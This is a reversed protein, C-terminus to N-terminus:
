RYREPNPLLENMAGSRFGREDLRVEAFGKVAGLLDKRAAVTEVLEADIEVKAVEGGLDRVRLNRVPLGAGALAARLAAEAESVRHLGDATVETGYAIRSSLCAAAPKDWTSLNWTKSTARIEAKTLGADALPTIAGARSAARIGPRFGAVTDDANTGTAVNAIGRSEALPGLVSMLETKCFFCRDGANRRYGERSLEDTTPSHHAVGLEAAFDRALELETRPLSPSIATAAEVRIPGLARVAAALLFASDAGGSFAVLLSPLSALRDLLADIGTTARSAQSTM